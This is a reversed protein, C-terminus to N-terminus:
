VVEIETTEENVYTERSGEVKALETIRQGMEGLGRDWFGAGHGNRTLWFDHGFQSWTTTPDREYAAQLDTVSVTALFRVVDDGLEAAADDSLDCHDVPEGDDDTTTWIACEQYGAIAERVDGDPIGPDIDQLLTVQHRSGALNSRCAACQEASFERDTEESATVVPNLSDSELGASWHDIAGEWAALEDDPLDPTDGNALAMLCDVCVYETSHKVNM